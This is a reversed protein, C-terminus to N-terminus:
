GRPDLKKLVSKRISNRMYDFPNRAFTTAKEAAQVTRGLLTGSRVDDTNSYYVFSQQSPKFYDPAASPHPNESYIKTYRHDKSLDNGGMALMGFYGRIELHKYGLKNMAAAFEKAFACGPHGDYAAGGHKSKVYQSFGIYLRIFRFDASLGAEKLHKAFDSPSWTKENSCFTNSALKRPAILIPNPRAEPTGRRRAESYNVPDEVGGIVQEGAHGPVQGDLLVYLKVECDLERLPRRALWTGELMDDPKCLIGYLGKGALFRQENWIQALEKLKRSRIPIYILGQRRRDALGLSDESQSGACIAKQLQRKPRAPAVPGSSSPPSASPGPLALPERGGGHKPPLVGTARGIKKAAGRAFPVRKIIEPLTPLKM